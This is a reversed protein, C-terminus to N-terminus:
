QNTNLYFEAPTQEVYRPTGMRVIRLHSGHVKVIQENCGSAEFYVNGDIACPLPILNDHSVAGSIGGDLFWQLDCSFQEVVGDGIQIEVEQRWGTGPGGPQEPSRHIYADITVCVGTATEAVSLQKSDHLEIAERM